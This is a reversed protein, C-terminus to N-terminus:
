ATPSDMFSQVYGSPHPCDNMKLATLYGGISVPFIGVGTLGPTSGPLPSQRAQFRPCAPLGCDPYDCGYTCCILYDCEDCCCEIHPDLGNAPCDLGRNGPMLTINKM